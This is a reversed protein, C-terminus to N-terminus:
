AFKRHMRKLNVSYDDKYEQYSSFLFQVLFPCIQCQINHKKQHQHQESYEDWIPATRVYFRYIVHNQYYTLFCSPAYIPSHNCVSRFHFMEFHMRSFLM